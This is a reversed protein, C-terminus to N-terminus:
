ELTFSTATASLVLWCNNLLGTSSDFKIGVIGDAGQSYAALVLDDVLVANSPKEENFNQHCRSVKLAGLIRANEPLGEPGSIIRIGKRANRMEEISIGSQFSNGSIGIGNPLRSPACGSVSTLVLIAFSFYIAYKM